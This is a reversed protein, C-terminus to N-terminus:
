KIYECNHKIKGEDTILKDLDNILNKATNLFPQVNDHFDKLEESKELKVDGAIRKLQDTIKLSEINSYLNPWEDPNTNMVFNYVALAYIKNSFQIHTTLIDDIDLEKLLKYIIEFIVKLIENSKVGMVEIEESWKDLENYFRPWHNKIDKYLLENVRIIEYIEDDKKIIEQYGFVSYYEWSKYNVKYDENIFPEEKSGLQLYPYVDLCVKRIANILVEFNEKHKLHHDFRRKSKNQLHVSIVATVIGTAIGPLVVISEIIIHSIITM